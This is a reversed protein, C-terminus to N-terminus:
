GTAMISLNMSSLNMQWGLNGPLVYMFNSLSSNFCLILCSDFSGVLIESLRAWQYACSGMAANVRHQCITRLCTNFRMDWTSHFNCNDAIVQMFLLFEIHLMNQMNHMDHMNIDNYPYEFKACCCQLSSGTGSYGASFPYICLMHWFVYALICYAFIHLFYACYAVFICLICCIHLLYVFYAFYLSTM